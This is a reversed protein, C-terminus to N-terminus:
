ARLVRRLGEKLLNVNFNILLGLPYGTLKLYSLLQASHLPLLNEVAKLEVVLRDDALVDLRGQGIVHGKYALEVHVQRAFPIERQVLEHALAEEYVSELLGPGLARHVDIAAGIVSRALEDTALDPESVM